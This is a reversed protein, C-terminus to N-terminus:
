YRVLADVAVASGERVILPNVEILSFGRTLLLDGIRVAIKALAALDVPARGRGGTLLAAGRLTRVGSLVREPDVPLPIVVVDDLAEAWIGGLGIVLAPVVGDRRAAIVLEVGPEAMAEVLLVVPGPTGDEESDARKKMIAGDGAHGHLDVDVISSGSDWFQDIGAAVQVLRGAAARVEDDSRLDLALAGAESKHLLGRASLKLAVPYGVGRAAELIEELTYRRKEGHDHEDAQTCDHMIVGDKEEHDHVTAREDSTSRHPLAEPGLAPPLPLVVGRAVPIYQALLAKAEHEALWGRITSAASSARGAGTLTPPGLHSGQVTSPPTRAAAAIADLHAADPAPHRLVALAALASRLGSVSGPMPWAPEQRPMSAVLLVPTGSREGGLAAGARTAAWEAADAPPLGPPEDQVYIVPGVDPDAALTATLQAIAETDAWVLNTHDLPNTVTATHPLLEALRARTPPSLDALPLGADAALDATIAADGGSATLVALRGPGRRGSALARATELLDHPDRTLVGGAEQILAAFVRHDGALAATHAAAAQRGATSRGAKLVAIRVDARACAALAAALRPGDGDDELYLAVSRVSGTAALHSLVAPADIVSANGLSVVTHLGLGSRHALALVGINGSQTILAIPGADSPLSVADGWLPARAGVSVFGNANPGLVPLAPEAAAAEVARQGAANGSEGFGAAYVVAGGAGLRGADRLYGPVTDAATAIVVADPAAGLQSSVDDLFPFCRIGLVESRRPHVGFVPGPYGARRLNLLTAAAYSGPRDTAGVVVVSRPELLRTLDLRRRPDRFWPM